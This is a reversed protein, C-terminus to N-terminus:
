YGMGDHRRAFVALGDAVTVHPIRIRVKTRLSFYCPIPELQILELDNSIKLKKKYRKYSSTSLM